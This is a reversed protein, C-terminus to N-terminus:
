CTVLVRMKGCWVSLSYGWVSLLNGMGWRFFYSYKAQRIIPWPKSAIGSYINIFDNEVLNFRSTAMFKYAECCWYAKSAVHPVFFFISTHLYTSKSCAIQHCTVNNCLATHAIAIVALSQDKRQLYSHAPFNLPWKSNDCQCRVSFISFPRPKVSLQIGTQTGLRVPVTHVSWWGNRCNVYRFWCCLASRKVTFGLQKIAFITIRLIVDQLLTVLMVNAFRALLCLM